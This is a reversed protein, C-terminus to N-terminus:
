IAYKLMNGLVRLKVNKNHCKQLAEVAEFFIQLLTENSIDEYNNSVQNNKSDYSRQNSGQFHSNRTDNYRAQKPLQAFHEKVINFSSTNTRNSIPRSKSTIRQRIELYEQRCPCRPDDAKHNILKFGKKVCNHCKFVVSTDHSTKNLKCEAFDHNGACASCVSTRHCNKAGHGYM